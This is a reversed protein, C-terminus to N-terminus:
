FPMIMFQEHKQESTLFRAPVIFKDSDSLKEWYYDNLDHYKRFEVDGEKKWVEVVKNLQDDWYYRDIDAM